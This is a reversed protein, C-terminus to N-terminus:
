FVLNGDVLYKDNLEKEDALITKYIVDDIKDFKVLGVNKIDLIKKIRWDSCNDDTKNLKFSLNYYQHEGVSSRSVNCDIGEKKLKEELQRCHRYYLNNCLDFPAVLSPYYLPYPNSRVMDMIDDHLKKHDCPNVLKFNPKVEKKEEIEDSLIKQITEVLEVFTEYNKCEISINTLLKSNDYTKFGTIFREKRLEKKTM